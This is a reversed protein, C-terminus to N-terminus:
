RLMRRPRLPEGRPQAGDLSFRLVLQSPSGDPFLVQDALGEVLTLGLGGEEPWEGLAMDGSTGAGIRAPDVLHVEFAGGHHGFALVLPDPGAGSTAVAHTVSESVAIKLDELRAGELGCQRAASAVVLRALGVYAVSRPIHLEVLEM